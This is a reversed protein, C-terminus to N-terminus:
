DAGVGCQARLATGLRNLIDTAVQETMLHHPHEVALGLEGGFGVTLSIGDRMGKVVGTRPLRDRVSPFLSLTVREPTEDPEGHPHFYIAVKDPDKAIGAQILDYTNHHELRDEFPIKEIEEIDALDRIRPYVMDGAM